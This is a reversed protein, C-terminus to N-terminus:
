FAVGMQGAVPQEFKDGQSSNHWTLMEPFSVETAMTIAASEPPHLAVLSGMCWDIM